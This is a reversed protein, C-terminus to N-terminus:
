TRLSKRGELDKWKQSFTNFDGAVITSGDTEGQLEILKQRTYNTVRNNPGYVNLIIDEQVTSGKIMIHHGEKARIIKKVKFNAKGVGM